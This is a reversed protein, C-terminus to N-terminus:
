IITNKIKVNCFKIIYKKFIVINRNNLVTIGIM